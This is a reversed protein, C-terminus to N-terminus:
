HDWILVNRIFQKSDVFELCITRTLLVNNVITNKNFFTTKYSIPVAQYASSVMASSLTLILM